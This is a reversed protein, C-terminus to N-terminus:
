CLTHVWIQQSYYVKVDAMLLPHSGMSTSQLLSQCRGNAYPTFGYVRQSCYVKVDVMLLPHSGMNTSRLISQCRGNADVMRENVTFLNYGGQGM